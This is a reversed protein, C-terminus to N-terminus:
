LVEDLTLEHVDEGEGRVVQHAEDAVRDEPSLALIRFMQRKVFNKGLNPYYGLIISEITPPNEGLCETQMQKIQDFVPTDM